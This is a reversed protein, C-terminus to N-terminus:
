QVCRLKPRPERADTNAKKEKEEKSGESKPKSTPSSTSSHHVKSITIMDNLARRELWQRGPMSMHGVQAEDYIATCRRTAINRRLVSSM